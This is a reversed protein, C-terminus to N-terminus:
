RAIQGILSPSTKKEPLLTVQIYNNTNLYKNAADKIAAATVFRRTNEPIEFLTKVDEGFQYRSSIQSVLYANQKSNTEFDRLMKEREDNVQKETPGNAKIDAIDKFVAKVLEDVRDPNCGWTIDFEYAQRPIKTYNGAAMISYTGGLQERVLRAQLIDGLARIAIRHEPDYEFPGTFAMGVQSKPEIGKMVTKQVVGTPPRVGVDKWSELRHTSPLAGLYREVLPKITAVDFTGVFVFTFDGADAFRDKYFAVSKDLDLQDVLEATMMRARPHDQSLTKMM